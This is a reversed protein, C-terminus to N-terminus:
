LKFNKIKLIIVKLHLFFFHIFLCLGKKRITKLKNLIHITIFRYLSVISKSTFCFISLTFIVRILVYMRFYLAEVKYAVNLNYFM